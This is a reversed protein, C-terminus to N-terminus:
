RECYDSLESKFIALLSGENVSASNVIKAIIKEVPKKSMLTIAHMMMCGSLYFHDNQMARYRKLLADKGAMGINYLITWSGYDALGEELEFFSEATECDGDKDDALKTTVGKLKQYRTERTEVYKEGLICANTKKGDLLAEIMDALIGLEKQIMVRSSDNYTYCIQVRKRDPQKDWKPWNGKQTYWYKLMVEVHFAEHIALQVKVLAPVKFPLKSFDVPMYVASSVNMQKIWNELAPANKSTTFFPEDPISDMGAYNLYYSYLPTLMQLTNSFQAYSLAKGNKWLGLCHDGKAIQGASIIMTADSLNYGPWVYTKESTAKQLLDVFEAVDPKKWMSDCDCSPKDGFDKNTKQDIKQAHLSFNLLLCFLIQFSCFKKM